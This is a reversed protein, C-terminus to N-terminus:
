HSGYSQASPLNSDRRLQAEKDRKEQEEKKREDSKRIINEFSMSTSVPITVPGVPTFGTEALRAERERQIEKLSKEPSLRLREAKKEALTPGFRNTPAVVPAVPAAVPTKPVVPM